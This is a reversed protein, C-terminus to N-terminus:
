AGTFTFAARYYPDAFPREEPEFAAFRRWYESAEALILQSGKLNVREEGFREALEGATAERLWRQARQLAIAAEVGEDLHLHYFRDMLLMTSLDNVPWLSGLVGAAGAQLFAAPLGIVEDPLEKYDSIATQCASLVALRIGRLTIDDLIQRLTLIDGGLLLGSELPKEPDFQGHCAFHLHTRGPMATTIAAYTAAEACVLYAEKGFRRAIEEAELRAYPLPRVGDPLPLPNGVTLLCPIPAEYDQRRHYSLSLARASPAYSVAFLDGFIAPQGNFTVTVAHLPLLNLRGGPILTVRQLCLAQLRQALPELLAEGLFPLGEALTTQLTPGGLFQGLLYGDPKEGSDGKVLFANLGNETFTDAWVPEITVDANAAPRHLLLALSGVPTTVLYALPHGPRVAAAVDAFDLQQLFQSYGDLQRIATIAAQLDARAEQVQQRHAAWDPPHTDAGITLREQREAAELQRLSGATAQYQQFLAPSQQQVQLLDAEDRALRDNLGRAQGQELTVTAAFLDGVRALAYATQAYLGQGARQWSQQEHQLFQTQYLQELGTLGFKYARNAEDWARRTLAWQGWSRVALIVIEPQRERGLLCAQEYAAIAADLDAQQSNRAYRASFSNGLNNLYGARDPSNSPTRQVANRAVSIAEELDALQGTRVYRIRLSNGLNNLNRPLEPSNPPTRQVANHAVRIAEELDALHGTLAYRARLSNGLNNLRSPLNPSDSPTRQVALQCLELARTLDALQGQEWYRLLFVRGSNNLAALQLRYDTQPFTPHQLIFEWATVAEDLGRQDGRQVYRQEGMQAQQINAQFQPPVAPSSHNMESQATLAEASVELKETFAETIGIEQCRYLLIRHEDIIRRANESGRAQIAHMLDDLLISAESGLLEPHAQVFGYSELWSDTQIFQQITFFLPPVTPTTHEPTVVDTVEETMLRAAAELERYADPDEQRLRELAQEAQLTMQCMAAEPDDSLAVPLYERPIAPMAELWEDRWANGLVDYLYGLLGEAQERDQEETTGQAPSFILPPMYGPRYLLIPADAQETHGCYPCPLDHLTGALINDFLDPQDSTDVILWIDATFSRGCNHCSLDSQQVLSHPM